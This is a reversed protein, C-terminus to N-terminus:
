LKRYRIFSGAGVVTNEVTATNQAWVITFNGAAAATTLKGKMWLSAIFAGPSIGIVIPTGAFLNIAQFAAPSAYVGIGYFTGGVPLTVDLKISPVATASDSYICIEVEYSSLPDTLFLLEDDAQLVASNNVTEGAQKIVTVPSLAPNNIGGSM